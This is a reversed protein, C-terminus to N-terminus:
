RIPTLSVMTARGFGALRGAEGILREAFSGLAVAARRCDLRGVPRGLDEPEALRVRAVGAEAQDDVTGTEILLGAKGAATWAAVEAGDTAVEGARRALGLAACWCGTLDAEARQVLAEDVEDIRRRAGKAFLKRTLAMKIMDRDPSLWM